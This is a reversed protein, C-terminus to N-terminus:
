VPQLISTVSLAGDVPQIAGDLQQWLKTVQVQTRGPFHFDQFLRFPMKAPIQIVEVGVVVNFKDVDVMVSDSVAVTRSVAGDSVRLYASEAVPDIRLIVKATGPM